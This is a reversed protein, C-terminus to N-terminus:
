LIRYTFEALSLFQSHLDNGFQHFTNQDPVPEPEVPGSDIPVAQTQIRSIGPFPVSGM